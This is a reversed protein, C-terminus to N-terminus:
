SLVARRETKVTLTRPQWSRVPIAVYTGPEDGAARKIAQDASKAPWQKANGSVVQVWAAGNERLVIYHTTSETDTPPQTLAQGSATM